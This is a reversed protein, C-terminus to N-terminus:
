PGTAFLPGPADLLPFISAARPPEAAGATSTRGGVSPGTRSRRTRTGAPAKAGAGSPRTVSCNSSRADPGPKASRPAERPGASIRRPRTHAVGGSVAQRKSATRGKSARNTPKSAASARATSSSAPWPLARRPSKPGTCRWQAGASGTTSAIMRRKHASLPAPSGIPGSRRRRPRRRARRGPQREAAREAVARREGARPELTRQGEHLVPQGLVQAEVIEGRRGPQRREVEAPRELGRGAQRRVAEDRQAPHRARLVQQAPRRGAGQGPGCRRAAEGVM